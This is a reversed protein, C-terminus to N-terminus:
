AAPEDRPESTKEGARRKARGLAALYGDAGPELPMAEPQAPAARPPEFRPAPPDDPEAPAVSQLSRILDYGHKALYGGFITVLFANIDTSNIIWYLGVALMTGGVLVAVLGEAWDGVRGQSRLLAAVILAPGGFRLACNIAFISLNYVREGEGLRELFPMYWGYLTMIAGPILGLAAAPRLTERM